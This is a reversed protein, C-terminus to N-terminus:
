RIRLNKRSGCSPTSWKKAYIVILYPSTDFHDYRSRSSFKLGNPLKTRLFVKIKNPNEFKFISYNKTKKGTKRGLLKKFSNKNTPFVSQFISTSLQGLPRLHMVRFSTNGLP